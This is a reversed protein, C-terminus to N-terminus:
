SQFHRRKVNFLMVGGPTIRAGNVDILFCVVVALQYLHGCNKKTLVVLM